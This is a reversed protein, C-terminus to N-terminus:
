RNRGQRQSMEMSAAAEAAVAAAAAATVAAEDAQRQVNVEHVSRTGRLRAVQDKENSSLWTFENSLIHRNEVKL